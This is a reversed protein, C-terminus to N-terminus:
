ANPRGERLTTSHFDDISISTVAEPNYLSALLKGLLSKGSNGAVQLVVFCKKNMDPTLYYGIFEMIRDQLVLDGGTIRQLFANFKPANRELSVLACSVYGQCLYRLPRCYTQVPYSRYWLDSQSKGTAHYSTIVIRYATFSTM